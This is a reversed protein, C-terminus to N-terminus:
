VPLRREDRSWVSTLDHPQGTSALVSSWQPGKPDVNQREVVALQIPVHTIQHHWFGVVIGTRGAMGAHVAHHALVLCFASDHPNAPVSRIAYSPDIYKVNVEIGNAEFSDTIAHRIWVGIDAYRRNGSRVALTTRTERKAPL